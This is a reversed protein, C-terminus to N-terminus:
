PRSALDNAVPIGDHRRRALFIPLSRGRFAHEVANAGDSPRMEGTGSSFEIFFDSSASARPESNQLTLEWPPRAETPKTAHLPSPIDLRKLEESGRRPHRGTLGSM